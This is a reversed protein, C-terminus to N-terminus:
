CFEWDFGKYHKYRPVKKCIRYIYTAGNPSLKNGNVVYAAESSSLYTAIAIGNKIQKVPRERKKFIPKCEFPEINEMPVVDYYLFRYGKTINVKGVCNMRIASESCGIDKAAEIASNYVSVLKGNNDYRAVKNAVLEKKFPGINDTKFRRWQYNYATRHENDLANQINGSIDDSSVFISSAEKISKFCDVYKGDLDYQYIPVRQTFNGTEGGDTLNYGKGSTTRSDFFGIWYIERENLESKDCIEVIDYRFADEGYKRFACILAPCHSLKEYIDPNKCSKKHQNWRRYIDTSQGVYIKGNTINTIKYIGSIVERLNM